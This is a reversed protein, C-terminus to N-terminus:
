SKVLIDFLGKWGCVEEPPVIFLEDDGIIDHLVGRCYGYFFSWM